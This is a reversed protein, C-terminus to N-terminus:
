RARRIVWSNIIAYKKIGHIQNDIYKATILIKNIDDPKIKKNKWNNLFIKGMVLFDLKFFNKKDVVDTTRYKYM